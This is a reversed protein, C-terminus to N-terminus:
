PRASARELEARLAAGSWAHRPGREAEHVLAVLRANVPATRGSREALRVIEGNLYDVETTRGAQLDEWMSSRAEPDIALMRGALRTFIANPLGLVRPIWTPPLPTLRAPAIGAAGLLGLAERQAMATCRRFDRDSLQMKLPLDSLANIPNNLNLVLKAWQVPTMDDHLVLPLGAAEFAALFPALREHREVELRGESGHHFRGDGHNVVNFQVMGALVTHRPLQARLRSANQLGNQFSVVLASPPLVAALERGADDTAASKVTVLVLTADAVAAPTTAFHIADPAVAFAAGQWDTLALGCRRIEAGLRERGVFTVVCGTAALRGGVYCGISGAGYVAIRTTM